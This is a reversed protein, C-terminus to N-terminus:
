VGGGGGVLLLDHMLRQIAYPVFMREQSRVVIRAVGHDTVQLLAEM